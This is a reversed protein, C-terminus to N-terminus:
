SRRSATLVFSLAHRLLVHVHHLVQALDIGRVALNQLVDPQREQGPGLDPQDAGVAGALAGEQLDHGAHDLVEEPLGPRGFPHPHPVQRLFRLEVRGFGDEAVDLLPHARHV